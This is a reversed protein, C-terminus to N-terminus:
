EAANIPKNDLNWCTVNENATESGLILIALRGAQSVSSRM